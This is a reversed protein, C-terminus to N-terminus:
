KLSIGLGPENNPYLTGNKLIVAGAAPDDILDLHGDLDAYQTNPQSLSYHLGAAISLASEDMCGVMIDLNGARAVAGIQLAENIGGVKMLKVNVMDVLGRRTLRFIDRINLLSEDAMIPIISEDTIKGLIAPFGRPIPQELLQLAANKTSRIFKATEELTYGQNADIRITIKDGVAERLRLVREIDEDVNIGGKLKLIHFGDNIYNRAKTMTEELPMIGITISTKISKRYGGLLRYVPLNSYKGLIDYLAMDLMAKASPHIALTKDFKHLIFSIRIPDMGVVCPEIIEKCALLLTEANENTVDYDPGACGFGTIGKNTEVRLFVNEAETYSNYAISYPEKLKFKEVWYEIKTIKM